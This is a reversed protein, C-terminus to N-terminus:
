SDRLAEAIRLVTSMARDLDFQDFDRQRLVPRLRTTLQRQLNSMRPDSVDVPDNGPIAIKNRVLRVMEPSIPHLGLHTVGYDIDYFDRIAVERRTLAARIKEAFAEAMSICPISVTPVLAEGSIPDLLATRASGNVAKTILPERIGIEVKIMDPGSHVLSDYSLSGLYQRSQNAGRLSKTVKLNTEDTNIASFFKKLGAAHNRRVSRSCSVKVPVVFDLDESMRYFEAHVKALCTGGKFVLPSDASALCALLLTCFYDKEILRRSFGTQAATFGVAERFLVDDRHVRPLQRDGSSM